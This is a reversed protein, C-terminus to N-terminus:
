PLLEVAHRGALSRAILQRPEGRARLVTRGPEVLTVFNDDLTLQGAADWLYLDFVPTTSEVVLSPGDLRARITPTPVRAEKPECLLRVTRSGGFSGVVFVTTPDFEAVSLETGIRPKASEVTVEVSTRALVRGDALARVEIVATDVLPGKVDDLVTWLRVADGVREISALARDYLRRLEYAAAKLEGESDIVAWSQVPWCDNLQWILTGRCFESRRYHEIAFRLADRQNLQSTYMWEELNQARPYHLEVYGVFTDYGKATKDHFRAIPHRVDLSLPEPVDPLMRAFARPGPAAAFGFESAFRATSDAYFPYDGRGHWVDWYHQDGSGGSNAREGGCPSSPVYPREPDLEELVEPLVREYIAEGYYRPPHNAAVGWKDEWMTLNENNGCYLALSVHHQIRAVEARAEARIAEQAAADDPYYSCAFPFDQWVLLGLEDAADYFASSEYLGGGWVRLMNMGLDRARELARRVRDGSVVSPFSHEPIWNAGLVYIRRGNVEVQFSEGFRDPERILRIRCLGIRMTHVDLASRELDGTAKTGEPVLLSKVRYLRQAGHGAPWWLEPKEVRVPKGDEVLEPHGEVAHLVTGEGEVDSFFRLEVVGQEHRQVVRVNRIRGRHEILTVPKWIGASVLRPGWDWGFMYQAKRVFAREPFREVTEPLGEQALYRARRERGIRAASALEVSLENVGTRLRASVDIELPVFMDDHEAVVEGNLRVTAVTDLGEFCLVRRPLEPDPEFSFSTRYIWDEEDVWQCGLEHAREFPDAIVGARVLDLHVHGPVRAPLWELTSFGLTGPPKLWSKAAFQFGEHLPTRKLM